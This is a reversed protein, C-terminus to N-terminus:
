TSYVLIRWVMEGSWAPSRILGSISLLSLSMGYLRWSITPLCEIIMEPSDTAEVLMTPRCEMTLESKPNDACASLLLCGLVLNLYKM